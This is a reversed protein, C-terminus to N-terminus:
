RVHRVRTFCLLGVVGTGLLILSAPEPIAAVQSFTYSAVDARANTGGTGDGLGLLPPSIYPRPAGSDILVNDIFLRFGIGPTAELRYDHFDTNDFNLLHSSPSSQNVIHGTSLGTGFVETGTFAYFAFGYPNTDANGEDQLVRARILISFPLSPDIPPNNLEYSNQGQGAFGVGISNQHLIGGSVSFVRQEPATNGLAVYTWGQASPLLNMDLTIITDAKVSRTNDSMLALILLSLCFRKM